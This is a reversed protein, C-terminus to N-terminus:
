QNLFEKGAQVWAAFQSAHPIEDLSEKRERYYTLFSQCFELFPTSPYETHETLTLHCQISFEHHPWHLHNPFLFTNPLEPLPKDMAALMRETITAQPGDLYLHLSNSLHMQTGLGVGLRTALYQQLMGFEPLNVAHLGWHLDNSRNIVTMHLREDRIKFMVMDNCPPDATNATLDEPKWISLLARRDTNEAELRFLLDPIQRAIRPGYAGYLTHGDDSFDRIRKNYPELLAVEGVGALLALGESLALWPNWRRGPVTQVIPLPSSLETVVNLLERTPRGRVMVEPAELLDTLQERYIQGPNSSEYYFVTM